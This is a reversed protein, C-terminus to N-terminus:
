RAHLLSQELPGFLEPDVTHWNSATILGQFGKSRLYDTHYRYFEYQTECLFRATDQDRLKKENAMTWLGRFGLRGAEPNDHEDKTKWTALAKEISGYKEAAWDGFAKELKAMQPAPVGKYDFTWFFFSDENILEIGAVAPDEGLRIGDETKVALIADLWSRYLRQFEPEFYLTAFSPKTGDYGERWGPGNTPKLWLPFYISLHSYIGEKKLAGVADRIHTIKAHNLEGTKGDFVSGHMRVLNVGHKALMRACDALGQKDLKGPPGNVAWFRVEEGDGSRVLKEGRAVIHGHEGAFNENLFRLDIPSEAFTDKGPDWPTWGKNGEARRKRDAEAKEPRITGRPTFGDNTFVFCDLAGHFNNKSEFFFKATNKGKKLSVKGADVWAIFRLDPKGDSAINIPDVATGLSIERKGIDNIEVSLRAGVPNVRMWFTYDGAVPVDFEVVSEGPKKGGFNSVFDGGSLLDKKVQGGYWPHKKADTRKASEGEIWISAAPIKGLSALLIFCPLLIKM